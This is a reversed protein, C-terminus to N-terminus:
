PRIPTASVPAVRSPSAARSCLRRTPTGCCSSHSAGTAKGGGGSGQAVGCSISDPNLPEGRQSVYGGSPQSATGAFDNPTPEGAGGGLTCRRSPGRTWTMPQVQKTKPSTVIHRGPKGHGDAKLPVRNRRVTLTARGMDVDGLRCASRRAAVCARSRSCTGSSALPRRRVAVRLFAGCVGRARRRPGRAVADADGLDQHGPPRTPAPFANRKSDGVGTRLSPATSAARM